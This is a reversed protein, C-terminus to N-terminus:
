KSGEQDKIKIMQRGLALQVVGLVSVPKAVIRALVVDGAVFKDLNSGAKRAIVRGGADAGFAPGWEPPWLEAGRCFDTLLVEVEKKKQQKQAKARIRQAIRDEPSLYVMELGGGPNASARVEFAAVPQRPETGPAAAAAAAARPPLPPTQAAATAGPPPSHEPEWTAGAALAPPRAPQQQPQQQQQQSVPTTEPTELGGLPAPGANSLGDALSLPQSLLGRHRLAAAFSGDEGAPGVGATAPEVNSDASLAAAPSGVSSPPGALVTPSRVECGAAISLLPVPASAHVAADAPMCPADEATSKAHTMPEPKIEPAPEPELAPAPEVEPAPAVLAATEVPVAPETTETLEVSGAASTAVDSAEGGDGDDDNDDDNDDDDSDSSPFWEAPLLSDFTLRVDVCLVGVSSRPLGTAATPEEVVAGRVAASSATTLLATLADEWPGTVAAAAGGAGSSPLRLAAAAIRALPLPWQVDAPALVV